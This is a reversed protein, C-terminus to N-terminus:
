KTKKRELRAVCEIHATQPFMDVPQIELTKYKLRDLYHLDRSLTTPECSVYIIQKPNLAKIDDLLKRTCGKRPPDIIVIDPKLGQKKMRRLVLNADGLRFECNNIDNLEASSIADRVAEENVEIGYVKEAFRSMWLSISGTGSFVDIILKAQNTFGAIVFEEIVQYLIEAQQTNVQFFSSPSVRFALHGIKEAIAEKGFLVRSHDGLIKNTKKKNINQVVSKVHPFDTVLREILEKGSPLDKDRTVLIVMVDRTTLSQRVIVHRLLGRHFEEDYSPIEYENFMNELSAIIENAVTPQLYCNNIEVLRHSEPAYFGCIIKKEGGCFQVGVREQIKNRYSFENKSGIIDHVTVNKLKGIYTVAEKVLATKAQLQQNYSMHQLVCGGCFIYESKEQSTSAARSKQLNFFHPCIPKVRSLSPEVVEILHARAFNKKVEDIEISVEDGAVCFPVFIVFGKYRALGEGGFIISEIDVRLRDGKKLTLQGQEAKM